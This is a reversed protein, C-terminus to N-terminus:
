ALAPRREWDVLPGVTFSNIDRAIRETDWSAVSPFGSFGQLLPFDARQQDFTAIVEDATDRFGFQTPSTTALPTSGAVVVTLVQM